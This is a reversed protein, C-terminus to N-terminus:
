KQLERVVAFNVKTMIDTFNRLLQDQGRPASSHKNEALRKRLGDCIKAMDGTYKIMLTRDSSEIVSLSHALRLFSEILEEYKNIIGSWQGVRLDNRISNIITKAQTCEQATDFSAVRLQVADIAAKSAETETKIAKLQTLAIRLGLLTLILGTGGVLFGIWSLLAANEPILLWTIM